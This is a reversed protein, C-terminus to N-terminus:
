ADVEVGLMLMWRKMRKIMYEDGWRTLFARACVAVNLMGANCYVTGYERWVHVAKDAVM